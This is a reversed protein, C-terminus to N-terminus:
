SHSAQKTTRTIVLNLFSLLGSTGFVWARDDTPDYNAWFTQDSGFSPEFAAPNIWQATQEAKSRSGQIQPNGILSCRNTLENSPCTVLLPLGRQANFNGTLRWGGLISNL